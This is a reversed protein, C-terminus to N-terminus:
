EVNLLKHLQVSLRWDPHSRLLTLCRTVNATLVESIGNVPQLYTYGGRIEGVRQSLQEMMDIAEDTTDTSIVFKM